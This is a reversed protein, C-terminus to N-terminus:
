QKFIEELVKIRELRREGEWQVSYNKRIAETLAENWSMNPNQQQNYNAWFNIFWAAWSIEQWDSPHKQPVNALYGLGCSANDVSIQDHLSDGSLWRQMAGYYVRGAVFADPDTSMTSEADHIVWLVYWPIKYRDGVVRYIPYYTELLDKNGLAGGERLAEIVHKNADFLPGIKQTFDRNLYYIRMQGSLEENLQQWKEPALITLLSGFIFRRRSMQKQQSTEIM